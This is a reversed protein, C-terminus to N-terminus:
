SDIRFEKRLERVAGEGNTRRAVELLYDKRNSNYPNPERKARKLRERSWEYDKSAESVPKRETISCQLVM